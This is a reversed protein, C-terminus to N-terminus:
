PRSSHFLLDEDDENQADDAFTQSSATLKPNPSQGIDMGQVQEIFALESFEVKIGSVELIKVRQEKAWIILSKLEEMSMQM